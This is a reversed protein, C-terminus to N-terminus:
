MGFVNKWEMTEMVLYCFIKMSNEAGNVLEGKKYLVQLNIVTNVSWSQDKDLTVHIWDLDEEAKGRLDITITNESRHRPRGLSRTGESIRVLIRCKEHGGKTSYAGYLTCLILTFSFM